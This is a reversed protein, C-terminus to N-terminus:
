RFMELFEEYKKLNAEVSIDLEVLPSSPDLGLNDAYTPRGEVTYILGIPLRGVQVKSSGCAPCAYAEVGNETKVALDKPTNGQWPCEAERCWPMNRIHEVTQLALMKDGPNYDSVVDTVQVGQRAMERNADVVDKVNEDFYDKVTDYDAEKHYTPCPSLIDVLAFGRHLIGKTILDMLQEQRYSYGRAVFTAGCIIAIPVPDIPEDKAGRPSTPTVLGKHGTPSLQGKTLGYVQNNMVIDTIDPNLRCAHVFHEMGIAYHDGDGGANLVVLKPNALQIGMAVPHSRGHLWHFGCCLHYESIKSSCGIGSNDIVWHPPLKLTACVKKIAALVGADGCGACWTHDKADYSKASFDVVREDFPLQRTM